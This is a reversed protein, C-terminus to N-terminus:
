ANVIEGEQIPQQEPGGPPTGNMPQPTQGQRSAFMEKVIEKKHEDVHDEFKQKIEDPLIEWEQTKMYDQHVQIHVEHNDFSNITQQYMVPMGMEDVAPMGNNDIDQVQKPQPMPMPGMPTQIMQEEMRVNIPEGEAMKMNERQAHRDDLMMDDYLKNTENMQLFKFAKKPDVWGMKMIETMFAQKAATSRPAMSGSEVRFDSMPNLSAAKFKRVEYSQNRSTITVIRSEDWYDHVLSLIQCGTEQVAWELSQVTHFLISDNEEQLYAIASAAEVGPPTKGQNIENSGGAYDMDHQVLEVEMNISPPLGPQELPKPPEFGLNVALMLGPQSNYHKPNISGKIYAYQPKAALNRNELMVSRTRNYERQLPLLDTIVSESYFGGAPVHDIKVFPFKGHSLPFEFKRPMVGSLDLGESKKDVPTNPEPPGDNERAASPQKKQTNFADETGDFLTPQLDVGMEMDEVPPVQNEWVYLVRNETLAFMAGNPFNKCPKVWCELAHCMNQVNSNNVGIASLFRSELITNAAATTPELEVGWMNYADEPSMVRDHIVYPQAQIDSVQLYPVFLHFASVAEFDIKGPQGDLELQNPDYWNKIFSTGCIAAWFTAETRKINFRKNILLYEAIADAAMAAARDSEDTSAPVTFFQPEEKSLKTIEQRIIRRIRNAVLRVRHRDTVPAENLTFGNGDPAKGVTIWQRGQYFCLNQYWQKEFKMRAHQASKLNSVWTSCLKKDADGQVLLEPM